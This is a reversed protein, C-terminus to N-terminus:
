HQSENLHGGKQQPFTHYTYCNLAERSDPFVTLYSLIDKVNISFSDDLFEGGFCQTQTFCASSEDHTMRTSSCHINQAEWM